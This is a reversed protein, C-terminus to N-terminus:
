SASSAGLTTLIRSRGDAGTDSMWRLVRVQHNLSQCTHLSLRGGFGGFEPDPDRYAVLRVRSHVLAMSCMICPERTTVVEYDQCLYEEEQRPRKSGSAEEAQAERSQADAVNQIGVM